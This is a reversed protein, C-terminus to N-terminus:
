QGTSEDVSNKAERNTPEYQTEDPYLRIGVSCSLRDSISDTPWRASSVGLWDIEVLSHKRCSYISRSADRYRLKKNSQDSLCVIGEM